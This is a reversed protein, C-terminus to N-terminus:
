KKGQRRISLFNYMILMEGTLLIDTASHASCRHWQKFSGFVGHIWSITICTTNSLALGFLMTQIHMHRQMEYTGISSVLM